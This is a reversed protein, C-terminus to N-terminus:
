RSRKKFIMALSVDDGNGKEEALEKIFTDIKDTEGNKLLAVTPAVFSLKFNALSQYPALLGDTCLLVSDSANWERVTVRIHEFADESCLSHTVNAVPEDSDDFLPEAEGKRLLFAGGDGISVCVLKNGIVAAGSLTTGYAKQPNERLAEIEAESLKKTEHPRIRRKKLDKEVLSNWECLVALRLRNCLDEHSFGAVERPAVSLLVKNLALSAFRSGLHSRVYLKGGHGDCATVVIKDPDKYSSSFDQCRGGSKKHSYGMYTTNFIETKMKGSWIKLGTLPHNFLSNLRM